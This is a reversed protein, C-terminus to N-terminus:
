RRAKRLVDNWDSAPTLPIEVNIALEPRERRLRRALAYAAAQGTFSTDHDGIILLEGLAPPPEFHELGWATMAAWGPLRFLEGAALTTEVGEGVLLKGEVPDRLRCAAGKLADPWPTPMFKKRRDKPIEDSVYIRAACIVGRRPATIPAVLALFRRGNLEPLDKDFFPCADHGLLVPSDKRIGRDALHQSVVWPAQCAALLAKVAALRQAPSKAPKPRPPPKAPTARLYGEIERMATAADWGRLKRLLTFGNGGGCQRCHYSGCGYTDAFHYRDSGGCSPCATNKGRRLFSEELGFHALIEPWRGATGNLLNSRDRNLGDAAM